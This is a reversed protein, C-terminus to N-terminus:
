INIQNQRIHQPKWPQFSFVNWERFLEIKIELFNEGFDSEKDSASEQGNQSLMNICAYLMIVDDSVYTDFPAILFFFFVKLLIINFWLKLFWIISCM